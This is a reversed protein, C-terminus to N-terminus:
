TTVFVEKKFLMYRHVVYITNYIAHGLACIEWKGTSIFTLGLIISLVFHYIYDQIEFNKAAHRNGFHDSVFLLASILVSYYGLTPLTISLVFGRYFLEQFIASGYATFLSYGFEYKNIRPLFAIIDKDFLPRIRKYQIGLLLLILIIMLFVKWVSFSTNFSHPYGFLFPLSYPVVVLFCRIYWDFRFGRVSPTLIQFLLVLLFMFFCTTVEKSFQSFIVLMCFTILLNYLQLKTYYIKM